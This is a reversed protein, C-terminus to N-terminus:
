VLLCSAFALENVGPSSDVSLDKRLRSLIHAALGERLTFPVSGSGREAM